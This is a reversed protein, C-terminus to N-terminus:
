GFIIVAVDAGVFIAAFAVPSIWELWVFSVVLLAAYGAIAMQDTGETLPINAVAIALLVAALGCIWGRPRQLASGVVRLARGFPQRLAPKPWQLKFPRYRFSAPASLVNSENSM